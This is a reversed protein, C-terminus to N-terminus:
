HATFLATYAHANTLSSFEQSFNRAKLLGPKGHSELVLYAM